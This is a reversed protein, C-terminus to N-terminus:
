LSFSQGRKIILREALLDALVDPLREDALLSSLDAKTYAHQALARIVRGRLQRKSGEFKSQKAYSRSRHNLNGVSQKLYAGYDMLAWYWERNRGEKPLTQQLLELIAKDSIGTQNHFFHHIFVTRINTEVFVAPRDFVYALIAGATGAGIGPLKILENASEPFHGNNDLVIQQAAQQLFRARRNYGLGNWARLVEGSPAAALAQLSPFRRLFAEYKPIVRGVQTQQLMLESVTIKYPDFSGDPEPCRWPLDHRGHTEYYKRVTGQFKRRATDDIM